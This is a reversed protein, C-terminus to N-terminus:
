VIATSPKGISMMNFTYPNLMLEQTLTFVPDLYSIVTLISGWDGNGSEYTVNVNYEMQEATKYVKYVIPNGSVYGNLVPGGFQSLDVSEVGVIELQEGTWVGAGVLVLGYEPTEGAEVSEVVGSMDFLGVEDGYELNADQIIILSSEGTENPLDTFYELQVYSCSGDDINADSNYNLAAPDMCGGLDMTTACAENSTALVVGMDVVQVTYCHTVGYGLDWQEFHTEEFWSEFV